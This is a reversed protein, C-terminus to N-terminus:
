TDFVHIYTDSNIYNHMGANIHRHAELHVSYLM